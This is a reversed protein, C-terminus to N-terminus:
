LIFLTLVYASEVTAASRVRDTGLGESESVQSLQLFRCVKSVQCHLKLSNVFLM